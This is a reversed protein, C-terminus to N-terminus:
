VRQEELRLKGDNKYNVCWVLVRELCDGDQRQKVHYAQEEAVQSEQESVSAEALADEIPAAGVHLTRLLIPFLFNKSDVCSCNSRQRYITSNHTKHQWM